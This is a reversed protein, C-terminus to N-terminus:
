KSRLRSYAMAFYIGAISKRKLMSILFKEYRGLKPFMENIYFDLAERVTTHHIVNSIYQLKRLFSVKNTQKLYIYLCAMVSNLLKISKLTKIKQNNMNVLYKEVLELQYVEIARRFYDHNATNRTASGLVERYQYGSYEVFKIKEANYFCQISFMGDEGLAIHKPFQVSSKKIVDKKFLKTCVTNLDDYRLFYPLIQQEIFEKNLSINKPFPYNSIVKKGEMQSEFNSIIIDCDEAKATKFLVKYMDKEIFDDADVFGIYEGTSASLGLNRATSVGQNKQEYLKIRPDAKQYEKIITASNDTSGDNIFIFECEELTQALLSEICQAIYKEANYVPIIVSVKVSM